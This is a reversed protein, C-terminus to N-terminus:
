SIPAPGQESRSGETATRPDRVRFLPVVLGDRASEFVVEVAAGITVTPPDNEVLGSLMAHGEALAVLALVWPV